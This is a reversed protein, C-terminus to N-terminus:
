GLPPAMICGVRIMLIKHVYLKSDQVRCLFIRGCLRPGIRVESFDKSAFNASHVKWASSHM